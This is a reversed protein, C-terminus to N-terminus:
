SRSLYWSPPFPISILSTLNSSSFPPFSQRTPKQTPIPASPKNTPKKTKSSITPSRTPSLTLDEFTTINEEDQIAFESLFTEDFDLEEGHLDDSLIPKESSIVKTLLDFSLIFYIFVSCRTM